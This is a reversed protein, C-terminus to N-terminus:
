NDEEEIYNCYPCRWYLPTWLMEGYCIICLKRIYM